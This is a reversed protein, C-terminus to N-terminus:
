EARAIAVYRSFETRGVGLRRKIWRKCAPWVGNKLPATAVDFEREVSFQSARLWAQLCPVSPVWWNTADGKHSDDPCFQAVCDRRRHLVEGEIILTGGPRMVERIQTLALLPNKLHYYVGLFLVIDFDREAWNHLDYVSRHPDYHVQSQLAKHATSFTPHQGSPRQTIDDTAYVIRAGRREAEFSWLGDWCGIDLVKKGRFDVSKLAHLILASPPWAGPTIIGHGLDITHVWPMSGVTATLDLSAETGMSM